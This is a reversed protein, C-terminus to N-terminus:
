KRVKEQSFTAVIQQSNNTLYQAMKGATEPNDNVCNSSVSM